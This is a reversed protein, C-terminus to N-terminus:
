RITRGASEARSRHRECVPRDGGATEVTAVAPGDGAYCEGLKRTATKKAASKKTPTKKATM